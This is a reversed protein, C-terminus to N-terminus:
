PILTPISPRNQIRRRLVIAYTTFFMGALVSVAVFNWYTGQGAFKICLPIAIVVICMFLVYTCYCSLAKTCCSPMEPADPDDFELDLVVDILENAGDDSSEDDSRDM